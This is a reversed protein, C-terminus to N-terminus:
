YEYKKIKPFVPLVPFLGGKRPSNLNRDKVWGDYFRINKIWFPYENGYALRLSTSPSLNGDYNTRGAAGLAWTGAHKESVQIYGNGSNATSDFRFALNYVTNAIHDLTVGAANPVGQDYAVLSNGGESMYFSYTSGRWDIINSDGSAAGSYKPTWEVLMTGRSPSAAGLSNKLATSMTWSYGNTASGAETLRTVPCGNTYVLSTGYASIENQNGCAIIVDGNTVIRIGVIPIAQSRAALTYKAWSTTISQTTWNTGNNDTLDINGTGTVRKLWVSYTKNAAVGGDAVTFLITANGAAATLRTASSATGDPGTGDKVNTMNSKVWAANTMDCSYTVFNTGEGEVLLGNTEFRPEAPITATSGATATYTGPSLYALDPVSKLTVDDLWIMEGAGMGSFGIKNTTAHTAKFYLTHSTLTTATETYSALVTDATDRIEVVVSNGASVATKFTKQYTEGVVLNASLNDADAMTVSGGGANDVYTIKLAGGSGVAPDIELTNTGARTWTTQVQRVSVYDVYFTSATGGYQRVGFATGTTTAVFYFSYPQWSGTASIGGGIYNGIISWGTTETAFPSIPADTSSVYLYCSAKYLKGVVTTITGSIIGDGNSDGVVKRSYTGLYKQETSRENTAPTSWAGWGSDAEM